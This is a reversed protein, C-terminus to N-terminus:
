ESKIPNKVLYKEMLEPIDDLLREYVGEPAQVCQLIIVSYDQDIIQVEDASVYGLNSIADLFPMKYQLSFGCSCIIEGNKTPRSLWIHYMGEPTSISAYNRLNTTRKM